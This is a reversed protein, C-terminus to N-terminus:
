SLPAALKFRLPPLGAISADVEDGPRIAGVGAPTGTFVLDGPALEFFKSLHAIIEADSWIMDALDGDQRIDGNVKLSVRGSQPAPGPRILGIPASADFGKATDWPRGAKKAKAQLDRRTLDVGAAAGYVLSLADDPDLNRGGGKLALVLEAEYHLDSTEPPYPVVQLTTVADRPKSFFFPPERDPDAGMERAHDAYNRGVCYIRRVPFLGGGEVPLVTQAPPSIVYGSM